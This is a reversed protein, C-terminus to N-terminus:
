SIGYAAPKAGLLLVFVFVFLITSSYSMTSVKEWLCILFVCRCTSRTEFLRKQISASSSLGGFLPLFGKVYSPLVLPFLLSPILIPSVNGPPLQSPSFAGM